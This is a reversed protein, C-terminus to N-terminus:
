FTYHAGLYIKFHTFQERETTVDQRNFYYKLYSYPTMMVDIDIEASLTRWLYRSIGGGLIFYFTTQTPRFTDTPTTTVPDISQLGIAVRALPRYGPLYETNFFAVAGIRGDIGTISYPGSSSKFLGLGTELYIDSILQYRFVMDSGGGSDLGFYESDFITYSGALGLSISRASSGSAAPPFATLMFALFAIIALARRTGDSIRSGNAVSLGM